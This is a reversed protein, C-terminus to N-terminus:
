FLESHSGTRSLVLTVIEPEIKYILLWNPRIHCERFGTYKGTLAHDHYKRPLTKEQVLYELVTQLQEAKNGPHQLAQKYEKKFKSHYRIKLM